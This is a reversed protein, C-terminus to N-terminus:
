AAVPAGIEVRYVFEPQMLMTRLVTAAGVFFDNDETAISSGFATYRDSEEVEVPRRWLKRGVSNVFARMCADDNAAAPVCPLLNARLAADTFVRASAANFIQDLASVFAFSSPLKDSQNDFPFVLDSDPDERQVEEATITGLETSLDVGLINQLTAAMEPRTLRRAEVNLFAAPNGNDVPPPVDPVDPPPDTPDPPRATPPPLTSVAPVTVSSPTCSLALMSLTGVIAPLLHRQM